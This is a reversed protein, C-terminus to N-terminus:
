HGEGELKSHRKIMEYVMAFATSTFATQHMSAGLGRWLAMGGEARIVQNCKNLMASSSLIRSWLSKPPSVHSPSPSPSSSSPYTTHISHHLPPSTAHPLSVSPSSSSPSISSVPMDTMIRTRLTDLPHIVLTTILGSSVGTIADLLAPRKRLYEYKVAERRLGSYATWWQTSM